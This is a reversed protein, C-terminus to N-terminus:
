EKSLISHYPSPALTTWVDAQMGPEWAQKEQSGGKLGKKSQLINVM